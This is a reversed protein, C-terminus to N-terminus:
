AAIEQEHAIPIVADLELQLVTKCPAAQGENEYRTIPSSDTLLGSHEPHQSNSVWMRQARYDPCPSQYTPGPAVM